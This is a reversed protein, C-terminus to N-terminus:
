INILKIIINGKCSDKLGVGGACIHSPHLVIKIGVDKLREDCKELPVFPIHAYLLIDSTSGNETVGWGTITLKEIDVTNIISENERAIELKRSRYRSICM